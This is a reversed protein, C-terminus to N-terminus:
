RYNIRSPWCQKTSEFQRVLVYWLLAALPSLLGSILVVKGRLRLM